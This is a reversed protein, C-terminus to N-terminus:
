DLKGRRMESSLIVVRATKLTIVGGTIFTLRGIALRVQKHIGTM